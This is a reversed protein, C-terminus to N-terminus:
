HNFLHISKMIKKVALFAENDDPLLWLSRGERDFQRLIENGPIVGAVNIEPPLNLLDGHTIRNAIITIRSPDVLGAIADLTDISRQSADIIVFVRNVQSTVDRNIQEVGAEADILVCAYASIIEDMARRLLKNASCFCGKERTRGMALLSFDPREVLANLIFYDLQDVAEAASVKGGKRADNILQDRVGSLTKVTKEGIASVLGGVPDADILLLPKLGQEIIIRGLLASFVTKGVGGKGCVSIIPKLAKEETAENKIISM